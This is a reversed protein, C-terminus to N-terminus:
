VKRTIHNLTPISICRKSIMERRRWKWMVCDVDEDLIKDIEFCIGDGEGDGIEGGDGDGTGDGVMGGVTHSAVKPSKEKTGSHTCGASQSFKPAKCRSEHRRVLILCNRIERGRLRDVSRIM